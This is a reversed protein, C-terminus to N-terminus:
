KSLKKQYEENADEIGKDKKTKVIYPRLYEIALGASAASIAATLSQDSTRKLLWYWVAFCLFGVIMAAFFLPLFKKM